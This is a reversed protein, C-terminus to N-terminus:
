GNLAPAALAAVEAILQELTSAPPTNNSFDLSVDQMSPGNLAAQRTYYDISLANMWKTWAVSHPADVANGSALRLTVGDMASMQATPDITLNKYEEMASYLLKAADNTSMQTYTWQCSCSKTTGDNSCAFDESAIAFGPTPEVLGVETVPCWIPPCGDAPVYNRGTAPNPVDNPYAGTVIQPITAGVPVLAYRTDM